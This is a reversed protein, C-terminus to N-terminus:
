EDGKDLEVDLKLYGNSMLDFNYNIDLRGIANHIMTKVTDIDVGGGSSSGGSGSTGLFEIVLDEEEVFTDFNASVRNAVADNEGQLKNDFALSVTVNSLKITANSKNGLFNIGIIFGQESIATDIVNSSFNFLSCDIDIHGQTTLINEVLMYNTMDLCTLSINSLIPYNASVNTIEYDFGIVMKTIDKYAMSTIPKHEFVISDNETINLKVIKSSQVFWNNGRWCDCLNVVFPSSAVNEEDLGLGVKDSLITNIDRRQSQELDMVM